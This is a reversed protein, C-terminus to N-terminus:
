VLTSTPPVVVEKAQPRKPKGQSMFPQEFLSFSLYSILITPIFGITLMFLLEPFGHLQFVKELLETIYFAFNQHCLYLSYSIVGLFVLPRFTLLRHSVGSGSAAGVILLFGVLAICIDSIPLLRFYQQPNIMVMLFWGVLGTM